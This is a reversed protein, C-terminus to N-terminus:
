DIIITKLWTNYFEQAGPKNTDVLQIQFIKGDNEFFIEERAYGQPSQPVSARMAKKPDGKKALISFNFDKPANEKSWGLKQQLWDFFKTKPPLTDSESHSIMAYPWGQNNTAGNLWASDGGDKEFVQGIKCPNANDCASYDYEQPYKFSYHYKKNVYTKWKSTDMSISVPANGANDGSPKASNAQQGSSGVPIQNGQQPNQTLPMSHLNNDVLPIGEGGSPSPSAAPSATARTSVENSETVGTQKKKFGDWSGYVDKFTDYFLFAMFGLVVLLVSSVSIIIKNRM